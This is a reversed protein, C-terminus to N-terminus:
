IVYEEERELTTGCKPCPGPHEWVTVRTGHCRPCRVDPPTEGVKVSRVPEMDASYTVPPLGVSHLSRCDARSVGVARAVFGCQYGSDMRKKRYGCSPCHFNHWEGM